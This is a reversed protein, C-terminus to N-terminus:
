TAAGWPGPRVAARRRGTRHRPRQGSRLRVVRAAALCALLPVPAMGPEPVYVNCSPHSGVLLPREVTDSAVPEDLGLLECLGTPPAALVRRKSRAKCGPTAETPLMPQDHWSTPQEAGDTLLPVELRAPNAPTSARTRSCTGTATPRTWWPKRATRGPAARGPRAWHGAMCKRPQRLRIGATYVLWTEGIRIVDGSCLLKQRLDWGNVWLKGTTSVNILVRDVGIRGLTLHRRSITRDALTILADERGLTYYAQQLLWARFHGGPLLQVFHDHIPDLAKVPPPPGTQAQSPVPSPTPSKPGSITTTRERLQGPAAGAAREGAEALLAGREASTACSMNYTRCGNASAPPLDTEELHIAVFAKHQSLAEHMEERVLESDLAAPSLFALCLPAFEELAARARQSGPIAPHLGDDYWIRFGRACRGLDAFVRM